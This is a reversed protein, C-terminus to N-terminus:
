DWMSMPVMTYYARWSKPPSGNQSYWVRMRQGDAHPQITARYDTAIPRDRYVTWNLGDTSVAPYDVFGIMFIGLFRGQHGIVDLHSFNETGAGTLACVTRSSWPGLPATATRLDITGSTEPQGPEELHTSSWARWDEPGVRVLAQSISRQSTTTGPTTVQWLLTRASWTVGDPSTAAYIWETAPDTPRFERWTLLLTDDDPNYVIDPDSNVGGNAPLFLYAPPAGTPTQWTYGDASVLVTPNEKDGDDDYYPTITMWFRWGHWKGSPTITLFDIVDPHVVSGTGDPTPTVMYTSVNYPASTPFAYPRTGPDADLPDTVPVPDTPAADAAGAALLM